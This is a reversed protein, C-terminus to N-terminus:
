KSNPATVIADKIQRRTELHLKRLLEVQHESFQIPSEVFTQCQFTDPVTNIGRLTGFRHQVLGTAANTDVPQYPEGSPTFFSFFLLGHSGVDPKSLRVRMAKWGTGAQDLESDDIQWGIGRYCVRLDHWGYFLHDCSVTAVMNKGHFEWSNSYQGNADGRSRKIPTYAHQVFGEVDSELASEELIEVRTTFESRRDPRDFLAPAQASLCVVCLVASFNVARKWPIAPEAPASELGRPTHQTKTAILWNFAAVCPNRFAVGPKDLGGDPVTATFTLLFLDFNYVLAAALALAAYGLLEHSWGTALDKQWWYEALAVTVVRLVNMVGAFFFSSGIVLVAHFPRRRLWCCILVALFLLTFLSQVGSCAEEVLLTRSTLTIVNGERLHLCGVLNLINSAVRSTLDQLAQIVLLDINAPLRVALLPLFALYALSSGTDKDKRSIALALLLLWFGASAFWPSWLVAATLLLLLDAVILGVILRPRHHRSHQRAWLMGFFAIFAFPFFQYHTQRWVTSFESILLPLHGVLLILFPVWWLRATAETRSETHHEAASM